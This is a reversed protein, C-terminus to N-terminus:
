EGEATVTTVVGRKTKISVREPHTILNVGINGRLTLALGNQGRSAAENAVDDMTYSPGKSKMYRSMNESFAEIHERKSLVEKLDESTRLVYERLADSNQITSASLMGIEKTTLSDLFDNVRQQYRADGAPAATVSGYEDPHLIQVAQHVDGSAKALTSKKVGFQQASAAFRTFADSTAKGKNDVRGMTDAFKRQDEPKLKNFAQARTAASLGTPGQSMNALAQPSLHSVKKLENAIAKERGASIRSLAGRLVPIRGATGELATGAMDGIKRGIPRFPAGGVYRAGTGVYGRVAKVAGLGIGIAAAAGVISMQKAVILSGILIAVTAFYNFLIGTNVTHSGHSKALVQSMQAGYTIALYMMFASAPFFFSWQFLKKWWQNAYGRTAPLITALFGLPALVFIVILAVSRVLLMVSLAVFVFILTLQLILITAQWFFKIVLEDLENNEVPTAKIIEKDRTFPQNLQTKITTEMGASLSKTPDIPYHEDTIFQTDTIKGLQLVTAINESISPKSIEKIFALALINSADVVTFAIVLSFNILLAIIILKPLLQKAGYSELRLITAIAIVLLIFIFFINAVDRTIEWGVTIARIGGLGALSIAVTADFLQAVWAVLITLMNNLLKIIEVLIKLAKDWIVEKFATGLKELFGPPTRIFSCGGDTKPNFARCVSGKSTCNEVCYSLSDYCFAAKKLDTDCTISPTQAKINQSFVPSFAAFLVIGFVAAFLLPKSQFKKYAALLQLM